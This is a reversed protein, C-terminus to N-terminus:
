LNIVEGSNGFNDLAFSNGTIEAEVQAAVEDWSQNQPKQYQPNRLSQSSRAGAAIDRATKFVSGPAGITIRGEARIKSVAAQMHQITIGAEAFDKLDNQWRGYESRVPTIGTAMHFAHAMEARPGFTPKWFNLDDPNANKQANQADACKNINLEKNKIKNKIRLEKDVDKNETKSESSIKESDNQIETKNETKNETKSESQIETKNLKRKEYYARNSESKTQDSKQRESFHTIMYKETKPKGMAESILDTQISVINLRVLENLANQVEKKSIHLSWAIDDVEPLMGGRDEKGAILFFEITRRFLKDSMRGMKPDSLIEHYLKIWSNAM